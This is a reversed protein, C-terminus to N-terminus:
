NNNKRRRNARGTSKETRTKKPIRTEYKGEGVEKNFKYDDFRIKGEKYKDTIYKLLTYEAQKKTMGTSIDCIYEYTDEGTRYRVELIHFNDKFQKWINKQDKNYSEGEFTLNFRSVIDDSFHYKLITMIEARMPHLVIQTM